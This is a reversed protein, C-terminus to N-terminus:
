TSLDACVRLAHDSSLMSAVVFLTKCSSLPTLSADLSYLTGKSDSRWHMPHSLAAAILFDSGHCPLATTYHDWKRALCSALRKYFNTSEIAKGGTASLVLPVFSAREVERVRQEYARKNIREHKRYGASLQTNRNSPAHPNFLVYTMTPDKIFMGEFVM